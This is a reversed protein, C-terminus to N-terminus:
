AVIDFRLTAPTGITDRPRNSSRYLARYVLGMDLRRRTAILSMTSSTRAPSAVACASRTTAPERTFIVSAPRCASAFRHFAGTAQCRLSNDSDRRRLKASRERAPKCGFASCSRSQDHQFAEGPRFFSVRRAGMRPRRFTSASCQSRDTKGSSVGIGEPDVYRSAILWCDKCARSRLARTLPMLQRLQPALPM